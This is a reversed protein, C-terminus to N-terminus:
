PGSIYIESFPKLLSFDVNLTFGLTQIYSLWVPLTSWTVANGQPPPPTGPPPLLRQFTASEWSSAPDERPRPTCVSPIFPSPRDIAYVNAAQQCSADRWLAPYIRYLNSM